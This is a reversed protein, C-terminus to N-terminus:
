KTSCYEEAKEMGDFWFNAWTCSPQSTCIEKSTYSDCIKYKKYEVRLKSDTFYKYLPEPVLHRNYKIVHINLIVVASLM